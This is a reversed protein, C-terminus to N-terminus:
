LNSRGTPNRTRRSLYYGLNNCHAEADNADDEDDGYVLHAAEHVLVSFIASGDGSYDEDDLEFVDYGDTANLLM